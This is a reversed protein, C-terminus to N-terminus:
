SCPRANGRQADTRFSQGCASTRTANPNHIVFGARMLEDVYEIEAGDLFPASEPDVLLTLGDRELVTDSTRREKDFAMGYQFGSCGGSVVFVRLAADELQREEMLGKAKEIATPSVTIM